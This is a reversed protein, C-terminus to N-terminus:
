VLSLKTTIEDFVPYNEEFLPSLYYTAGYTVNIKEILNNEELIKMHHKVGKYDLSIEKSIQHVNYPRNKLLKVIKVRAPAGRSTAFLTWFMIKTQPHVNTEISKITIARMNKEIIALVSANILIEWVQM